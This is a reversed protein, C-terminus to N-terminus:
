GRQGNVRDRAWAVLEGANKGTNFVVRLLSDSSRPEGTLARFDDRLRSRIRRGVGTGNQSDRHKQMLRVGSVGHVYGEHMLGWLTKENHHRVVADPSYVLRFGARHIRWSFDVDQARLLAVDFLGTERLVTAPSAWNMSIVYPQESEIAMQHDHIREGFREIRNADVLSLIRGGVIGITPDGLPKVIAGLWQPEVVCDADTFAINTGRAALIGRNRAASAGRTTESLLHVREGFSRVISPTADTSANDVVLLEYQESPFAQALLSTICAAITSAGNYVPVIVSVAPASV